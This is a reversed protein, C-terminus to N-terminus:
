RQKRQLALVQCQFSQALTLTRQVVRRKLFADITVALGALCGGVDVLAFRQRLTPAVHGDQPKAISLSWLALRFMRRAPISAPASLTNPNRHAHAWSCILPERTPTM